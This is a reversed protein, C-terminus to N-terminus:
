KLGPLILDGLMQVSELAATYPLKIRDAFNTADALMTKADIVKAELNAKEYKVFYTGWVIKTAGLLKALEWVDTEYSPSKQDINLALMQDRIEEVPVLTYLIGAPEKTNLYKVLSDTYAWSLSDYKVEGTLNKFPFIAIRIPTQASAGVSILLLFLPLLFLKKM